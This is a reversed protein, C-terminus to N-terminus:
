RRAIALSVLPPLVTPLVVAGVGAAALWPWKDKVWQLTDSGPLSSDIPKHEPEVVQKGKKRLMAAFEDVRRQSDAISRWAADTLTLSSLFGIDHYKKWLQIATDYIARWGPENAATQNLNDASAKLQIAADRYDQPMHIALWSDDGVLDAGIFDLGVASKEKLKAAVLQALEEPDVDDDSLQWWPYTYVVSPGIHQHGHRHGGGGRRGGGGRHGGGRGGGFGGRGLEVIAAGIEDEPAYEGGEEAYEGQPYEEQAYEEAYQPEYEPQRYDDQPYSPMPASPAYPVAGGSGGGAPASMGGPTVFSAQVLAVASGTVPGVAATVTYRGPQPASFNGAQDVTGGSASWAVVPAPTVAKGAADLATAVFGQTAGVGMGVSKPAVVVRAVGPVPASPAPAATGEATPAPSAADPAAPAAAPPHLRLYAQARGVWEWPWPLNPNGEQDLIFQIVDDINRAKELAPKDGQIADEIPKIFWNELHSITGLGNQRIPADAPLQDVLEQVRYMFDTVKEAATAIQAFVDVAGEDAYVEEDEGVKTRTSMARAPVAISARTPVTRGPRSPAPPAPKRQQPSPAQPQAAPQASKVAPAPTATKTAKGGARLAKQAAKAVTAALNPARKAIRQGKALLRQGAAAARDRSAQSPTVAGIFDLASTM